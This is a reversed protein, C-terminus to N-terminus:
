TGMPVFFCYMMGDPNGYFASIRNDQSPLAAERKVVSNFGRIHYNGEADETVDEDDLLHADSKGCCVSKVWSPIETGDAWRQHADAGGSACWLFFCFTAYIWIAAREIM